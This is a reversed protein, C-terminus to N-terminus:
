KNRLEEELFISVQTAFEAPKECLLAHGSGPLLRARIAASQEAMRSSISLYHADLDGTLVLVPQCLRPLDNWLSPLAGTGLHALTAAWTDPSVKLRRALMAAYCPHSRVKAFIPQTYWDALFRRLSKNGDLRRLRAALRADERRRRAREATNKLGPSGCALVAARYRDPHRLLLHLAVRAGMSYGILISPGPVSRRLATELSALTPHDALPPTACSVRGALDAVIPQWDAPSGLFGHLLVATLGQSHNM